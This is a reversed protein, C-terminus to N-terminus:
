AIFVRKAPDCEGGGRTLDYAAQKQELTLTDESEHYDLEAVFRLDGPVGTGTVQVTYEGALFNAILDSRADAKTQRNEVDLVDYRGDILWTFQTIDGNITGTAGDVADGNRDVLTVDLDLLPGTVLADPISADFEVTVRAYRTACPLEWGFSWNEVVNTPTPGGPLNNGITRDSGFKVDNPIELPLVLPSGGILEAGAAFNRLNGGYEDLVSQYAIMSHGGGPAQGSNTVHHDIHTHMVWLGPQDMEIVVDYRSAPGILLTDVYYRASPPIPNGDIHTVLMDHGHTHISEMTEGANLFRVRVRDGEEVIMVSDERDMMSFPMARGNLLWTDAETQGPPNQCGQRGSMGCGGHRHNAHPDAQTIPTVQVQERNLTGYVYTYEKDIDEPEYRDDQPEVIFMGYLGQMVHFHTDVHCHYWLSGARAAIFEYRFPNDGIPPEESATLPQPCVSNQTVGPVGDSLWPVYQGHWHISHCHFHNNEFDVIVKDGQQVRLTPAPVSCAGQFAPGVGGIDGDSEITNWYEIADVSYQDNPDAAIMCFAWLNAKFGPYVQHNLLDAVAAKLHVTKGTEEFNKGPTFDLEGGGADFGFCGSLGMTVTALTALLLIRM